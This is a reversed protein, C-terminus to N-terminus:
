DVQLKVQLQAQLRSIDKIRLDKSQNLMEIASQLEIGKNKKM